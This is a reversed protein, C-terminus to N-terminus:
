EIGTMMRLAMMCSKVEEAPFVSLSMKVTNKAPRPQIPPIRDSTILIATARSPVYPVIM